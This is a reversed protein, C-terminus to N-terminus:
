GLFYLKIRFLAPCFRSYGGSYKKVQKLILKAFIVEQVAMGKVLTSPFTKFFGYSQAMHSKRYPMLDAGGIGMKLKEAQAFLSRMYNKDDWPVM